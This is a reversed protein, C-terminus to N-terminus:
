YRSSRERNEAMCEWASAFLFGMSVLFLISSVPHRSFFSSVNQWADESSSVLTSGLRQAGHKTSEWAQQAMESGSSALNQATEKLSEMTDGTMERNPLHSTDPRPQRGTITSGRNSVSSM